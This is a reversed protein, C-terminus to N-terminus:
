KRLWLVLIVALPICIALFGIFFGLIGLKCRSSCKNTLCACTEDSSSIMRANSSNNSNVTSDTVRTFSNNNHVTSDVGKIFSNSSKTPWSYPSKMFTPSTLRPDVSTKEYQGGNLPTPSWPGSSSRLALSDFRLSVSASAPTPATTMPPLRLAEQQKYKNPPANHDMIDEITEM